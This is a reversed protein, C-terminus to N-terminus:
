ERRPKLIRMLSHFFDVLLQLSLMYCGVLTLFVFPALPIRIIDTSEAQKFLYTWTRVGAQWGVIAWFGAGLLLTISGTIARVRRPLHPTLLEVSVHGKKLATYSLAFFVVGAMGMDILDETGLLPRNFVYRGVVNVGYLVLM